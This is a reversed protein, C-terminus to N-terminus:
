RPEWVCHCMCRSVIITVMIQIREDKNRGQEKCALDQAPERPVRVSQRPDGEVGHAPMQHPNAWCKYSKRLSYTPPRELIPLPLGRFTTKGGRWDLNSM